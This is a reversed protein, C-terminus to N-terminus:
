FQTIIAFENNLDVIKLVTPTVQLSPEEHHGCASCEPCFARKNMAFVTELTEEIIPSVWAVECLDCGLIVQYKGSITLDLM